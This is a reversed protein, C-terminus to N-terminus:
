IQADKKKSKKVLAVPKQAKYELGLCNRLDDLELALRKLISRQRDKYGIVISGDMVLGLEDIIADLRAEIEKLRGM